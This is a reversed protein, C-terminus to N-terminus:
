LMRWVFPGAILMSVALYAGILVRWSRRLLAYAFLAALIGSGFILPLLNSAPVNPASSAGPAPTPIVAIQGSSILWWEHVAVACFLLLVACPIAAAVSFIWNREPRM